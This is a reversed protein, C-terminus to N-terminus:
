ATIHSFLIFLNYFLVKLIDEAYLKFEALSLLRFNAYSTGGLGVAFTVIEKKKLFGKSLSACVTKHIPWDAAQCKESCYRVTRCAGCKKGNSPSDCVACLMNEVRGSETSRSNGLRPTAKPASTCLLLAGYSSKRIQLRPCYIIMGHIWLRARAMGRREFQLPMTEPRPPQYRELVDALVASRPFVALVESKTDALPTKSLFNGAPDAFIVRVFIPYAEV